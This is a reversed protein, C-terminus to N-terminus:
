RGRTQSTIRVTATDSAYHLKSATATFRGGHLDVSAEGDADTTVARGAVTIRAGAVPRCADTVTFSGRRGGTAKLTLGPYAQTHLLSVTTGDSDRAIADVRDAQAALDLQYTTKGSPLPVSVTAGFSTSGPKDCSRRLELEDDEIWGAWLRGKADATLALQQKTTTGSSVTTSRASGYPWLRVARRNGDTSLLYFGGNSRAVLPVRTNAPCFSEAMGAVLATSGPMLAAAGVPAGTAPDVAQAYVGDPGQVGTCWAAVVEGSASSALAQDTGPGYGHQAAVAPDSGAHVVTEEASYWSQVLTSGSRVVSADRSSAFDGTAIAAPAVAWTAGADGSTAQDVGETPDGTVSTRSGSWFALLGSGQALLTPGEVSAWGSVIPVSPRIAGTATIPTQLVDYGAPQVLRFWGVHLTGDGTRATGIADSINLQGGTGIPKWAAGAAAPLVGVAVAALGAVGIAIARRRRV